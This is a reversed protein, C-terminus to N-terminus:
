TVTYESPDRDIMYYLKSRRVRKKGDHIFAKQQVRIAQILPDYMVIRRILPTGNEVNLMTIATDSFRNTVAIVLGKVTVPEKSTMYQLKDIAISDGARIPPWVRGAKLREFHEVKLIALLSSARINNLISFYILISCLTYIPLDDFIIKLFDHYSTM